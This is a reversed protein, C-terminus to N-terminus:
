LNKLKRMKGLDGEGYGKEYHLRIVEEFYLTTAEDKIADKVRKHTL